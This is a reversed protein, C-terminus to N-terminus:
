RGLVDLRTEYFGFRGSPGHGLLLVRYTANGAGIDFPVDASGNALWLTPRWLLTDSSPGNEQKHAYEVARAANAMEAVKQDGKVKEADKQDAKYAAPPPVPGGAKGDQRLNWAPTGRMGNAALKERNMVHAVAGRERRALAQEFAQLNSARDADNSAFNIQGEVKPASAPALRGIPAQEDGLRAAPAQAIRAAMGEEIKWDPPGAAFTPAPTTGLPGLWTATFIVALCATLCAFSGGFMPTAAKHARVIRYLGIAMLILSAALLLAVALGLVLNVAAQISAEFRNLNGAALTVASEAAGRQVDVDRVEARGRERIPTVAASVRDDYQKQFKDLPMNERSFVLPQLAPNGVTPENGRLYRRWGNTGLFRELVQASEPSDHLIVQANDLDAGTHVENLLFFHASLSRSRGHYREDVVSGLLWAQAPQGKEDRASIRAVVPREAHIQQTNLAFGLDLRQAPVRYVLREAIPQLLKDTLEYATVRIMGTADATPDLTVEAADRKIDVWRQDLVQGRCQAVLLLKRAPGQQRVILRIPDGQNGVAKPAHEDGFDAVQIVVGDTRMGGLRAFPSGVNEIRTPTTIRVTYTEKPNPTFDLYGMGLQYDSDAEPINDKGALIMVKGAGTIPEGSKSRIRYFVRNPVGAILDGGEPYFDITFETPAVALNGRLEKKQKGAGGFQLAVPVRAANPAVSPMKAEFLFRQPNGAAGGADVMAKAHPPGGGGGPLPASPLPIPMPAAMAQPRVTFPVPQGAITAAEPKAGGQFFGRVTEGPLYDDRDFQIDPVRLERAIEVRLAASQVAQNLDAPRVKLTYTGEAFKDDVLFEGALVGGPGTPLDLWRVAQGQPNVLEVHMPVGRAPPQLSFRELVLVRFFLVDRLQYAIKSTDIRTVYTPPVIRVAEQVRTRGSGITAEVIVNLTSNPRAAGADLEAAAHGDEDCELHPLVQVANGTEDVVKIRLSARAAKNNLQRATGEPHHASVHLHGKAGPQLTTPGVVHLYPAASHRVDKVAANHLSEYKVPIAAFEDAIRKYDRRADALSEQYESKTHSIWAFSASVAILVAAAASWAVLPRRWLPRRPKVFPTMPLTPQAASPQEAPLKFEAVNTVVRAARAMLKQQSQAKQLAAQCQSCANLHERAEHLDSEELLGYVFDLLRERCTDCNCM